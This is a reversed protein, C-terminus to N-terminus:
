AARSNERPIYVAHPDDDDDDFDDDGDPGDDGPGFDESLRSVEQNVNITTDGRRAFRMLCVSLLIPVVVGNVFLAVAVLLEIQEQSLKM